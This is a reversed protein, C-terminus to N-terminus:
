DMAALSLELAELLEHYGPQEGFAEVMQAAWRQMATIAETRGILECRYQTVARRDREGGVITHTTRCVARIGLVAAVLEELGVYLLAPPYERLAGMFQATLQARRPGIEARLGAITAAEVGARGALARELEAELRALAASDDYFSTGFLHQALLGHLAHADIPAYGHIPDAQVGYPAPPTTMVGHWLAALGGTMGYCGAFLKRLGELAALVGERGQVSCEIASESVGRQSQVEDLGAFVALTLDRIALPAIGAGITRAEGLMQRWLHRTWTASVEARADLGSAVGDERDASRPAGSRTAKEHGVQGVMGAHVLAEERLARLRPSATARTIFQAWGASGRPAPRAVPARELLARPSPVGPFTAAFMQLLRRIAALLLGRPAIVGLKKRSGGRVLTLESEVRLVDILGLAEILGHHFDLPPYARMAEHLLRQRLDVSRLAAQAALEAGSQAGLQAIRDWMDLMAVSSRPIGQQELGRWALETEPDDAAFFGNDLLRAAVRGLAADTLPAHGLVWDTALPLAALAALRQCQGVDALQERLAVFELEPFYSRRLLDITAVLTARLEDGRRVGRAVWGDIELGRYALTLCEGLGLAIAFPPCLAALTAHAAAIQSRLRELTREITARRRRGGRLRKEAPTDALVNWRDWPSVAGQLGSAERQLSLLEQELAAVEDRMAGLGLRQMELELTERLEM